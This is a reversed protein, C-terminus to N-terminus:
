INTLFYKNLFHFLFTLDGVIPASKSQNGEREVDIGITIKRSM